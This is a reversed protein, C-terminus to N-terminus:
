PIENLIAKVRDPTMPPAGPQAVLVPRGFKGRFVRARKAQERELFLKEGQLSFAVKDGAQFHLAKRFRHPM